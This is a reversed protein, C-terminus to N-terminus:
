WTIRGEFMRFLLDRYYKDYPLTFTLEMDETRLKIIYREGGDGDYSLHVSTVDSAEVPFNVETEAIVQNPTMEYFRSVNDCSSSGPMFLGAHRLEDKARDVGVERIRAFILKESTMAMAYAGERGMIHAPAAVATVVEGKAPEFREMEEAALPQGCYPCFRMGELLPKGCKACNSM